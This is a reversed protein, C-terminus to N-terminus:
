KDRGRRVQLGAATLLVLLALGGLLLYPLESSGVVGSLGKGPTTAPAAASTVPAISVPPLGGAPAVPAGGVDHYAWLTVAHDAARFTAAYVTPSDATTLALATVSPVPAALSRFTQGSDGTVWLGGQNSGGGDSALYFRDPHNAVFSVSSFDVAPVGGLPAWTGGGDASLFAGSNTGVVMPRSEAGPPAAGAAAAAVMTGSGLSKVVKWTGGGDLSVYLPLVESGRSTDGGALLKAPDNVAAVAIASLSLQSFSLYPSWTTGDRSAYLGADTGVLTISKAFGATRVTGSPLGSDKSWSLGGDSSRWLGADRSGAYVTGPKFPNFQITLVGRGIGRAAATWTGGGDTSRYIEGAGTGVLVTAPDIPSVAVAFVPATLPEPLVGLRVWTNDPLALPAAPPAASAAVVGAVLALAGLLSV